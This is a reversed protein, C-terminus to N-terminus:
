NLPSGILVHKVKNAICNKLNSKNYVVSVHTIQTAFYKKNFINNILEVCVCSKSKKSVGFKTNIGQTLSYHLSIPNCTVVLKLFFNYIFKFFLTMMYDECKCRQTRPRSCKQSRIPNRYFRQVHRPTKLWNLYNCRWFLNRFYLKNVEQAWRLQLTWNNFTACWTTFNDFIQVLDSFINNM